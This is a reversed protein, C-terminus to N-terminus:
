KDEKVVICEKFLCMADGYILNNWILGACIALLLLIAIIICAGGMGFDDVLDEMM